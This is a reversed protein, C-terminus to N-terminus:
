TFADERQQRLTACSVVGNNSFCKKIATSPLPHCTCLCTTYHCCTHVSALLNLYKLVRNRRGNISLCLNNSISHLLKTVICSSTIAHRFSRKFSCHVRNALCSCPFRDRFSVTLHKLSHIHAILLTAWLTFFLTEGDDFM